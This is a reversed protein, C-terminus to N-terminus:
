SAVPVPCSDPMGLYTMQNLVKCRLLMEASQNKLIRSRLTPGFIIKLRFIATESLSRRHYNTEEKWQKRGVEEIRRIADNRKELADWGENIIANSRPPIVPEAEIETIAEYCSVYDYGKDGGVKFIPEDIQDLLEGLMTKDHTNSETTVVAVVEQTAEDIGLHVKRWLRPKKRESGDKNLHHKRMHWEGHGYVKLGTADVVMHFGQSKKQRPLEIEMGARRRSLTSYDPVPLVIDMLKLISELFGQTQRLALGYVAQLTLAVEIATDSYTKQRGRQNPIENELWSEQVDDAIWITLSGRQKLARNYESWNRLRYQVKKKEESM